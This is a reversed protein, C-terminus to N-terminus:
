RPILNRLYSLVEETDKMLIAQRPYKFCNGLLSLNRLNKLNGLEPPVHAINNNTLDLIALKRLKELSSVDIKEILNDNAILSELSVVNYIAEPLEVFRNFSLDIYRLYQLCSISSPLSQLYNKSIDLAQLHKYKEGIWEPLLTLHNSILKVDTVTVIASMKEPLESLKNRSLDITEVSAEVANELVEDPLELLNQGALSLLKTSKMMYKDPYTSISASSQLLERTNVNTSDTIQRIHTLIRPTGCRIIDGRVNKINNGKIVFQKLNPLIGICFPILSINNHSLDFVELNILKMIEEPIMEIKNYALTLKKLLTAGELCEPEIELINNNDLHLVRLASCGSVDPFNKLNNSQLMIKEIKRLEGFPPLIELQNFSVDLTKLSRMSTMDPPLEKIMNHSLDLTVLRVLYGIGIPLESLNNYSLDMHILMILNGIEPELISLDNNKLHLEGLEELMYLQLTLSKLKNDSLNLIRLKNLSGIESPLEELLNNHLDLTSLETLFQVKDSIATLNNSSLDLVKLPEQEWWREEKHEYDLEFHLDHLEEKTLENISWIRDPVKQAITECTSSIWVFRVTFQLRLMNSPSFVQSYPRITTYKRRM